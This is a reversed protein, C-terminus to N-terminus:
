YKNSGKLEKIKFFYYNKNNIKNFIIIPHARDAGTTGRGLQDREQVKM